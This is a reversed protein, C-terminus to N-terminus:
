LQRKTTKQLTGPGRVIQQGTIEVPQRPHDLSPLMLQKVRAPLCTTQPPNVGARPSTARM